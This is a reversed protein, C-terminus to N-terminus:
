RYPVDIVVRMRFDKTDLQFHPGLLAVVQYTGPYRPNERIEIRGQSLPRMAKLAEPHEEGLVVYYSLWTNLRKSLEAQTQYSGMWEYVMAKLYHAFRCVAFLYPLQASQAAHATTTEDTYEKPKHTSPVAFFVANANDRTSALPVFGYRTLDYEVAESLWADTPGMLAPEGTPREYTTVPLGEVLGGSEIGEIRACWGFTNFARV